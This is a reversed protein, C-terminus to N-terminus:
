LDAHPCARRRRQGPIRAAAAHSSDLQKDDAGHSPPGGPAAATAASSIVIALAAYIYRMDTVGESSCSSGATLRLPVVPNETSGIERVRVAEVKRLNDLAAIFASAKALPRRALAARFNENEEDTLFGSLDTRSRQAPAHRMSGSTRQHPAERAGRSRVRQRVGHRHTQSDPERSPRATLDQITNEIHTRSSLTDFADGFGYSGLAPAPLSDADGTRDTM